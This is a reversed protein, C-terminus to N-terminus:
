LEVRRKAVIRARNLGTRESGFYSLIIEQSMARVKQVEQHMRNLFQDNAEGSRQEYMVDTCVWVVTREPGAPLRNHYALSLAVALVLLVFALFLHENKM